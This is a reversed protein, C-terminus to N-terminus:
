RRASLWGPGAALRIAENTRTLAQERPPTHDSFVLDIDVSLRPMDM